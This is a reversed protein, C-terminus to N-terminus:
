DVNIEERVFEPLALAAKHTDYNYYRTKFLRNYVDRERIRKFPCKSAMMATRWGSPYSPQPFNLTQKDTFGAHQLNHLIPKIANAQLLSFQCPQILIGDARLAQHYHQYNEPLVNESHHSQIIIDFSAPPCTTLWETPSAHHYNIRLDHIKTAAFYETIASELPQNDAVCIVQRVSPHKLVEELIGFYNGVIVIDRPQHHTFLIPHVMMEHYFFGDQESLIIQENLTLVMGYSLTQYIVLHGHASKNEYLKQQPKSSFFKELHDQM